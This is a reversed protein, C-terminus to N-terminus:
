SRGKILILCLYYSIPFVTLFNPPAKQNNGEVWCQIQCM